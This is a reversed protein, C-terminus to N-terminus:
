GTGVILFGFFRGFEPSLELTRLRAVKGALDIERLIELNPLKRMSM